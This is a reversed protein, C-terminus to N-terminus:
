KLECVLCGIYDLFHWQGHNLKHVKYFGLNLCLLVVSLALKLVQEIMITILVISRDNTICIKM